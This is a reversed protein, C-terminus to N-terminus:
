PCIDERAIVQAVSRASGRTAGRRLIAHHNATDSRLVIDGIRRQGNAPGGHITRAISRNRAGTRLRQARKRGILHSAHRIEHVHFAAVVIVAVLGLRAINRQLESKRCRPRLPASAIFSVCCPLANLSRKTCTPMTTTSNTSSAANPTAVYAHNVFLAATLVFETETCLSSLLKTTSQAIRRRATPRRRAIDRQRRIAGVRKRQIWNGREIQVAKRFTRVVVIRTFGHMELLRGVALMKVMPPNVQTSAYDTGARSISRTGHIQVQAIRQNGGIGVRLKQTRALHHLRAIERKVARIAPM